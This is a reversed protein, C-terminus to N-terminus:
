PGHQPARPSPRPKASALVPLRLWFHHHHWFSLSSFPEKAGSRLTGTQMSCVLRWPTTRPAHAQAAKRKGFCAVPRRFHHHHWFSLSSLREKSAGRLTGGGAASRAARRPAPAYCKDGPERCHTYKILRAQVGERIPRIKVCAICEKTDDNRRKQGM